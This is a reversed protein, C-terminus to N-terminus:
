NFYQKLKPILRYVPYLISIQIRNKKFARICEINQNYINILSKNTAGGLRMKVLPLPLYISSIKYKEFMRLMLEFDAALKYSLDFFGYDDYVKKRLFFTPHAPHWGKNFSGPKYIGTRWRRIIKNTNNKDVYLLDAFVCDVNTSIFVKMVTEIATEDIYLDDSNLIAIVEGSSVAIGKNMADYIGKDPESIVKSVRCPLSNIIKLTDDVSAGDINIHEIEKYTQDNVSKLCTAITRASNYTATIISILM